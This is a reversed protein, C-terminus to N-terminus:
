KGKLYEAPIPDERTEAEWLMTIVYWRKRDHFLQFSALGRQFPQPDDANHRLEYTSFVHAIDGYHEIRSSIARMFLGKKEVPPWRRTYEEPSMVRSAATSVLPSEPNPILRAGPYFLLPFRHWDRKKGAPCSIADYTASVIGEISNLEQPTVEVASTVTSPQSPTQTSATQALGFCAYTFLSILIRHKMLESITPIAQNSVVLTILVFLITKVNRGVDPITGLLLLLGSQHTTLRNTLYM